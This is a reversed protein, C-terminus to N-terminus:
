FFVANKHLRKYSRLKVITWYDPRTMTPTEIIFDVVDIFPDDM